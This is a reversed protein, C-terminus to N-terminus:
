RRGILEQAAEALFGSRSMGRARAEVDIAELLRKPMSINVRAPAGSDLLLPVAVWTAGQASAAAEPDARLAELTRPAPAAEGQGEMAEVHLRLAEIANAAAEDLTDGASVCGPLDPFSVGYCSGTEKHILAQYHAM